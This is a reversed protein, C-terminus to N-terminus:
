CLSLQESYYAAIEDWSSSENWGLRTADVPDTNIRVMPESFDTQVGLKIRCPMGVRKGM